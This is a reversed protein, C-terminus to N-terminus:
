PKVFDEDQYKACSCHGVLLMYRGDRSGADLSLVSTNVVFHSEETEAKCQPM